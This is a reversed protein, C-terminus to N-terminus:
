QLSHLEDEGFLQRTQHKREQEMMQELAEQESIGLSRALETITYCPSGDPTYRTPKLEPFSSQTAHSSAQTLIERIEPPGCILLWEVAEAWTESDVTPHRLVEMATALTWTTSRM